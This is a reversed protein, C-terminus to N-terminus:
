TRLTQELAALFRSVNEPRATHGMLGIRWIKGALPGLGAGIEIKFEDRLRRRVASEDIGEPLRVANLMPLRYPEDVLMTLGLDKLGRVLALHNEGHRRFVKEPGEEFILRLAEYLGYIMNVPATHHYVRNTGWYNAILTLDLYWNPVKSKRSKLKAMAKDSFSIPALGPPCSLCKQTGSYLVDINWEDMRVELGGLSTVTDVIYITDSGKFLKGIEAVPSEVGTSTEAHVVAAIRYSESRVKKEVADPLVPTGWPFEVVDVDARLRQAVDEMRMGFVGNKMILVKDGPEVLNVFAAEMGASGTGSIPITLNNTTNMISRLMDKLEDMIKLFYPDLHGLTVRSLAWYVRPPVCSPGPGMLLIEEIDELLNKMSIKEEM